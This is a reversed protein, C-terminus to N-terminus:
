REKPPQPNGKGGGIPQYGNGNKGDYQNAKFRAYEEETMHRFGSKTWVNIIM